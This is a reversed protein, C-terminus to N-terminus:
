SRRMRLTKRAQIHGGSKMWDKIVDRPWWMARKSARIPEPLLGALLMRRLTRSGIGLLAALDKPSLPGDDEPVQADIRKLAAWLPDLQSALEESVIKRITTEDLVAIPGTM